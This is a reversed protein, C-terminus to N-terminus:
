RLNKGENIFYLETISLSDDDALSEVASRSLEKPIVLPDTEVYSGEELDVSFTLIKNDFQRYSYVTTGKPDICSIVKGSDIEGIKIKVLQKPKAAVKWVIVTDSSSSVIFKGM